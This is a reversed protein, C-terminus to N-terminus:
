FLLTRRRVKWRTCKFNLKLSFFRLTRTAKTYIKICLPRSSLKISSRANLDKATSLLIYLTCSKRDGVWSRGTSDEWTSCCFGDPNAHYNDVEEMIDVELIERISESPRFYINTSSWQQLATKHIHYFAFLVRNRCTRLTGCREYITLCYHTSAMWRLLSIRKVGGEWGLRSWYRSM